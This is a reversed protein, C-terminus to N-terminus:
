GEYDDHHRDGEAELIDAEDRARDAAWAEVHAAWAEKMDQAARLTQLAGQAMLLQELAVMVAAPEAALMLDLAMETAQRSGFHGNGYLTTVEGQTLLEHQIEGRRRAEWDERQAARDQQAYYANTARTIPDPLTNM